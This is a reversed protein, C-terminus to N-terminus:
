SDLVQLGLSTIDIEPEQGLILASTVKGSGLSLTIGFAGHGTCIFVGSRHDGDGRNTFTVDLQSRSISAIIPRKLKNTPRYCLGQELIGVAQGFPLRKVFREAYEMFRKITAPVLAFSCTDTLEPVAKSSDRLGCM